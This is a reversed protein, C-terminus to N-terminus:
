KTKNVADTKKQSNNKIKDETFWLYEQSGYVWKTHDTPAKVYRPSQNWKRIASQLNSAGPGLMVSLLEYQRSDADRPVQYQLVVMVGTNIELTKKMKPYMKELEADIIYQMSKDYLKDAVWAYADVAAGLKKGRRAVTRHGFGRSSTYSLDKFTNRGPL